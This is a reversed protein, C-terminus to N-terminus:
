VVGLGRREKEYGPELGPLGLFHQRGHSHLTRCLASSFSAGLLNAIILGFILGLSGSVIDQAPLRQLRGELWRTSQTVFDILRGSLVYGIFAAMLTVLGLLTLKLGPLPSTGWNQQWVALVLQTAYFGGGGAALAIAVRVVRYLM